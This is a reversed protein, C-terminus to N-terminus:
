GAVFGLIVALTKQNVDKFYLSTMAGLFTSVSAIFAIIFGFWIDATVISEMTSSNFAINSM